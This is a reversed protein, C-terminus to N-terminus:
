WLRIYITEPFKGFVYKTVPCLWVEMDSDQKVYTAGIEEYVEKCYHFGENKLYEFVKCINSCLFTFFKCLVIFVITLPWLLGGFVGAIDCDEDGCYVYIACGIVCAILIYGIICLAILM